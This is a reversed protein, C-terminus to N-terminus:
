DNITDPNRRAPLRYSNAMVWSNVHVYICNPNLNRKKGEVSSGFLYPLKTPM